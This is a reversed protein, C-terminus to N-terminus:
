KFFDKLFEKFTIKKAKMTGFVAPIFVFLIAIFPLILMRMSQQEAPLEMMPLVETIMPYFILAGNIVSVFAVLLLIQRKDKLIQILFLAFVGLVIIIKFIIM